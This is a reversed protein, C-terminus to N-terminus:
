SPWEVPHRKRGNHIADISRTVRWQQPKISANWMAREFAAARDVGDLMAKIAARLEDETM